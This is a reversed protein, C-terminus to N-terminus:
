PKGKQRWIGYKNGIKYAAYGISGAVLLGLTHGWVEGAVAEPDMMM